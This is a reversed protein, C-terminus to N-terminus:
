RFINRTKRQPILSGWTTIGEKIKGTNYCKQFVLKFVYELEDQSLREDLTAYSTGRRGKWTEEVATRLPITRQSRDDKKSTRRLADYRAMVTDWFVIADGHSLLGNDPM